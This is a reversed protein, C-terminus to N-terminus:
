EINYDGFIFKGNEIAPSFPETTRLAEGSRRPWESAELTMRTREEAPVAGGGGNEVNHPPPPPAQGGGGGPKRTAVNAFWESVDKNDKGMYQITNQINECMVINNMFDRGKKNLHRQTIPDCLIDRRIMHLASSSQVKQSYMVGHAHINGSENFEYCWVFEYDGYMEVTPIICKALYMRMYEYQEAHRAMGYPVKKKKGMTTVAIMCGPNPSVTWFLTQATLLRPREEVLTRVGAKTFIVNRLTLYDMNLM